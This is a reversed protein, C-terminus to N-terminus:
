VPYLTQFFKFWVQQWDTRSGISTVPLFRVSMTGSMQTKLGNTGADGSFPVSYSAQCLLRCLTRVFDTNL